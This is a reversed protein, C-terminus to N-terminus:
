EIEAGINVLYLYVGLFMYFLHMLIINTWVQQSYALVPMVTFLTALSLGYIEVIGKPSQFIVMIWTRVAMIVQFAMLMVLGLGGNWVYTRM